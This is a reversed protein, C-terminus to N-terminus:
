QLATMFRPFMLLEPLRREYLGVYWAAAEGELLSGVDHIQEIEDSYSEGYHQMHAEVQVLFYPLNEVKGDFWVKLDRRRPLESRPQAPQQPTGLPPLPQTPTSGAAQGSNGLDLASRQQARLWEVEQREQEEEAWAVDRAQLLEMDQSLKEVLWRLAEREERWSEATRWPAREYGDWSMKDEDKLNHLFWDSERRSNDPLMRTTVGSSAETAATAEEKPKAGVPIDGNKLNNSTEEGSTGDM